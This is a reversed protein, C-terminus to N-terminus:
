LARDPVGLALHHRVALVRRHTRGTPPLRLKGFISTVHREVARESLYATAAIARNSRGQAMLTLVERERATLTDREARRGLVEAVVAPDLVSGGAAVQRIATVFRNVDPIRHELLYGAGAPSDDLLALARDQDVSQALVLTPVVRAPVEDLAVVAVDPKYARAKRTLEAGDRATAVVDLGADGLLRALGARLLASDAAVILRLPPMGM